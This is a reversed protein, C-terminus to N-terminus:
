SVRELWPTLSQLQPIALSLLPAFTIAATSRINNLAGLFTDAANTVNLFDRALEKMEATDVEMSFKLKKM